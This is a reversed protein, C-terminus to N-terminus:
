HYLCQDIQGLAVSSPLSMQEELPKVGLSYEYSPSMSGRLLPM